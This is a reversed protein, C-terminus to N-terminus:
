AANEAGPEPWRLTILWETYAALWHATWAVVTVANHRDPLWDSLSAVCIRGSEYLHPPQRMRKGAQRGLRRPQIVRVSPLSRDPHHLIEVMFRGRGTDIPGFWGWRGDVETEAFSPFACAMDAREEDAAAQDSEWWVESKVTQPDEGGHFTHGAVKTVPGHQPHSYGDTSGVVGDPGLVRGQVTIYRPTRAGLKSLLAPLTM